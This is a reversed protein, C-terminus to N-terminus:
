NKCRNFKLYTPYINADLNSLFKNVFREGTAHLSHKTAVWDLFNQKLTQIEVNSMKNLTELHSM